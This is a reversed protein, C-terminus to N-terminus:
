RCPVAEPDFDPWNRDREKVIPPDVPWEIAFAPDDFRYGRAHEPSHFESMQYWVETDNELAQFGHAFGRPVYLARRNEATLEVAAHEGFTSSEPRVDVIVDHIAGRVCRVLKVEERPPAQFHMGRLVGRERNYSLNCQVLRSELGQEAFERRCWTRAFFGRSDRYPELELVHAGRLILETFKM